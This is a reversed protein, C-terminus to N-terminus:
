GAWRDSPRRTPDNASRFINLRIRKPGTQVDRECASLRLKTRSVVLASAGWRFGAGGRCDFQVCALKTLVGRPARASEIAVSFLDAYHDGGKKYLGLLCLGGSTDALLSMNDVYGHWTKDPKWDRRDRVPVRQANWRFFPQTGFDCSRSSLPLGPQTRYFHVRREDPCTALVYREQNSSKYNAIGVSGAQGLARDRVITLRNVLRLKERYRYFRIESHGQDEVGVVLWDGITQIGGPHDFGHVTRRTEYRFERGDGTATVIFGGRASTTVMAYSGRIAVGQLHNKLDFPRPVPIHRGVIKGEVPRGTLRQLAPVVANPRLKCNSDSTQFAVGASSSRQPRRRASMDSAALLREVDRLEAIEARLRKVERQRDAIARAIAGM